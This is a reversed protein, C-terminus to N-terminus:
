KQQPEREITGFSHGFLRPHYLIDKVCHFFLSSHKQKTFSQFPMVLGLYLNNCKKVVLIFNQLSFFARAKLRSLHQWRASQKHSIRKWYAFVRFSRLLQCNGVTYYICFLSVSLSVSLCVSLCVCLCLYLCM